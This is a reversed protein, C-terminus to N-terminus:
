RLTGAVCAAGELALLTQKRDLGGGYGGLGGDAAIVRHCPVIISIPNRGNASGVARSAGPQGVHAALEGYSITEGYPIEGLARWVRQQFPTGTAAMPVDFAQRKCEFYADLQDIVAAFAADNHSAGPPPDAPQMHLGTLAGDADMTLLIEGIPSPVTTFVTMKTTTM